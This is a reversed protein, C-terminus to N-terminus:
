IKGGIVEKFREWIKVMALTDLECYKLLGERIEKQEDKPIERLSLFTNSAEEGNHVVSLNHYDLEPDDPYLAPLVKKISASGHMEKTYYQRKSFPIMFDVMNNNIRTLENELNPFMRALENIRTHEFSQNYVIVSGNDPIDRIMSEAFHRIFDNDDTEALFERHEIKEDDKRVIHLSYQFPIQQYPWTGEYEPIPPQFTEFDIFYLPYKLSEMLEKIPEVEIKAEKNNLEFDIQELYKENLDEYQLDEFAIKEEYYKEFKKDKHMGGHIDFVNPKPLNRTCYEWYECEYPASCQMGIDQEPENEADYKKMYENLSTVLEKIEAQKEIAIETIDEFVFLKDLELEGHRIYENNLHVVCVKKVKFGLNSLIYYQYSADDVFVDKLHTSSKVEYIEVGDLDNKLVDVSCFNNDFDFSAEAIVNPKHEMALETEAIMKSLDMNFEINVYDGFLGKALEGVANGNKFVREKDVITKEEPKYKDMWFMKKCQKARCYTSKSLHVKEM